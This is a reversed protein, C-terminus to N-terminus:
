QRMLTLAMTTVVCVMRCPQLDATHCVGEGKVALGWGDAAPERKPPGEEKTPLGGEDADGEGEVPLGWKDAAGEKDGALKM